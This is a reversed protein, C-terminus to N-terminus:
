AKGNGSVIRDPEFLHRIQCALVILDCPKPVFIDVHMGRARARVDGIVAATCVVIKPSVTLARIKDIFELGDGDPLLVDMVVLDPQLQAVKELAEAGTRAAEVRYGLHTLYESVMERGDRYDDVVLLLPPVGDPGRAVADPRADSQRRGGRPM